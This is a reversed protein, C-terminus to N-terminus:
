IGEQDPNENKPNDNIKSKNSLLEILDKETLASGFKNHVAIVHELLHQTFHTRVEEDSRMMIEEVMYRCIEMMEAWNFSQNEKNKVVENLYYWIYRGAEFENNETDFNFKKIAKAIINENWDFTQTQLEKCKECIEPSFVQDKIPENM